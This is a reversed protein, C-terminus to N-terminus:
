VLDGIDAAVRELANHGLDLVRLGRPVGIEPSVERLQNNHLCLARLKGLRVLAAPLEALQNEGLNLAELATLAALSAPVETLGARCASLSRVHGEGIECAIPRIPQSDPRASAAVHRLPIPQGPLLTGSAQLPAALEALARAEDAPLTLDDDAM